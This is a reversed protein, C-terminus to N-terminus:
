DAAAVTTRQLTRPDWVGHFWHLWVIAAAIAIGALLDRCTPLSYPCTVRVTGPMCSRARQQKEFIHEEHPDITTVSYFFM